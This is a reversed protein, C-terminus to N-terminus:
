VIPRTLVLPNTKTGAIEGCYQLFEKEHKSRSARVRQFMNHRHSHEVTCNTDDAPKSCDAYYSDPRNLLISLSPPWMFDMQKVADYHASQARSPSGFAGLDRETWLIGTHDWNHLVSHHLTRKNKYEIEAEKNICNSLYLCGYCYGEIIYSRITASTLGRAHTGLRIHPTNYTGNQHASGQVSQLHWSYEDRQFYWAYNLIVNIQCYSESRGLGSALKSFAEDFTSHHQQAVWKRVAEFTSRKILIPFNWMFDAAQKLGLMRETTYAWRGNDVGKVLYKQELEHWITQKGIVRPKGDHFLDEPAVPTVFLCDNDVVAIVEADTYVDAYFGSWMQRDYGKSRGCIRAPFISGPEPQYVVKPFPAVCELLDGFIHDATSDDDLVVILKGFNNPWFM